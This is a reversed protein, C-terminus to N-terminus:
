NFKSCKLMKKPLCPFRKIKCHSSDLPWKIMLIRKKKIDLTENNNQESIWVCKLNVISFHKQTCYMSKFSSNWEIRYAIKGFHNWEHFLMMQNISNNIMKLSYSNLAINPVNQDFIRVSNNICYQILRGSIAYLLNKSKHCNPM